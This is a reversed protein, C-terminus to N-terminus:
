FSTLDVQSHGDPLKPLSALLAHTRECVHLWGCPLSDLETNLVTNTWPRGDSQVGILLVKGFWEAKFWSLHISFNYSYHVKSAKISGRPDLLVHSRQVVRPNPHWGGAGHFIWMYSWNARERCKCDWSRTSGQAVHTQVAHDIHLPGACNLGVNLPGSYKDVPGAQKFLDWSWHLWNHHPWHAKLGMEVETLVLSRSLIVIDQFCQYGWSGELESM